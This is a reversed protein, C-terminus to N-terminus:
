PAPDRPTVLKKAMGRLYALDPLDVAWALPFVGEGDRAGLLGGAVAVASRPAGREVAWQLGRQANPEHYALWLAQEACAAAGPTEPPDLEDRGIFPVRRLRALLGVPADNALLAEVVDPFFDRRGRLFSAAAVNVAVASWPTMPDQHTLLITHYTGSVLNRSARHAPLALPLVRALPGGDGVGDQGEQPFPADHRAIFELADATAPDLGRGDRRWWVIWRDALRRLDIESELLEEALLLALAVDDGWRGDSPPPGPDAPEAARALAHGAALGVMLGRARDFLSPALRAM